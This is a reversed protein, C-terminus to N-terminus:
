PQLIAARDPDHGFEEFSAEVLYNISQGTTTPATLTIPASAALNIGMKVLVDTTDAPLSGFASTDVTETSIICGQGITIQMSAPATPTCALGSVVTGVSNTGLVSQLLMGFAIMVNREVNLMDTDLPIASPYVIIRDM